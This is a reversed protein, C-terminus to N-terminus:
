AQYVSVCPRSLSTGEDPDEARVPPRYTARYRMIPRHDSVIGAAEDPGYHSDVVVNAESRRGDLPRPDPRGDWGSPAETQGTSSRLDVEQLSGSPPSTM